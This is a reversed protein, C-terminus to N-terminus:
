FLRVTVCGSWTRIDPDSQRRVFPCPGSATLPCASLPIVQLFLRFPCVSLPQVRLGDIQFQLQEFRNKKRLSASIQV